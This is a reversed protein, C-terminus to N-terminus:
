ASIGRHGFQGASCHSEQKGVDLPRSPKQVFLGFSVRALKSFMPLFQTIRELPMASDLDVGLPVSEKDCERSCGVGHGRGLVDLARESVTLKPHPDSDVRTLRDHGILAIDSNVDMPGRPDRSSAVTSLDKKGLRRTIERSPVVQPVEPHMPEFIERGRLADILQTVALELCQSRLVGDVQRHLERM